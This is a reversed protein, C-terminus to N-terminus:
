ASGRGPTGCGSHLFYKGRGAKGAKKVAEIWGHDAVMMM